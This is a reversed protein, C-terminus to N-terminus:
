RCAKSVPDGLLATRSLATAPYYRKSQMAQRPGTGVPEAVGDVGLQDGSAFLKIAGGTAADILSATLGEFGERTPALKLLADQVEMAASRKRSMKAPNKATSTPANTM